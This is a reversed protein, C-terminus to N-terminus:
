KKKLSAQIREFESDSIDPEECVSKGKGKGGKGKGKGKKGEKSDLPGQGYKEFIASMASAKSGLGHDKGRIAAALANMDVEQEEKLRQKKRKPQQTSLKGKAKEYASTSEVEGKAIADDIIDCIREEDRGEEALMVSEMIKSLKGKYKSFERLVDEREEESGCYSKEFEEIASVTLKPFLNRFYAYWEDFDKTSGEQDLSGTDDYAKRKEADSLISHAVALGKFIEADGGKDPHHKLALKKYSKRIDEPPADKAVGFIEYLDSTGFALSLQESIHDDDEM